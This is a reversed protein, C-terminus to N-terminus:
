DKTLYALSGFKLHQECLEHVQEGSIRGDRRLIDSVALVAPWFGPAAFMDAAANWIRDIHHLVHEDSADNGALARAFIIAKTEDSTADQRTGAVTDRWEARTLPERGEAMDGALMVVGYGLCDLSAGQTRSAPQVAGNDDMAFAHDIQIGFAHLAAAHGGEHTCINRAPPGPPRPCLRRALAGNTHALRDIVVRQEEPLSNRWARFQSQSIM